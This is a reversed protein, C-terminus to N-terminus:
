GKHRGSNNYSLGIGDVDIYYNGNEEGTNNISDLWEINEFAQELIGKNVLIQKVPINPLSINYAYYDHLDSQTRSDSIFSIFRLADRYYFYRLRANLQSEYLVDDGEPDYFKIRPNKYLNYAVSAVTFHTSLPGTESQVKHKIMATESVSQASYGKAEVAFQQRLTDCYFDPREGIIKYGKLAMACEYSHTFKADYIKKSFYDAFARGIRNSMYATETPDKALESLPSFHNRGFFSPMFDFFISAYRFPLGPFSPRNIGAFTAHKVFALFSIEASTTKIKGKSDQHTLEYKM